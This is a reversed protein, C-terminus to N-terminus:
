KGHTLHHRQHHKALVVRRHNTLQIILRVPSPLFFDIGSGTFALTPLTQIWGGDVSPGVPFQMNAWTQQFIAQNAATINDVSAKKLCAMDFTSGCGAATSFSQYTSDMRGGDSNDWSWQFAPSQVVFSRFLPDTKGGDRVLHHLISSAGASEGWVSIKSADGGVRDIFQSVFKLLLAQDYLGANTQVNDPDQKTMTEMYHGALWGLAGLRYNGAVFIAKYGSAALISQGSYLPTGNILRKSGFLYAGGYFWVVVPLKEKPKGTSSDFNDVPAYIDLGLCDEGQPIDEHPVHIGPLQAAEQTLKVQICADITSNPNQGKPFSPPGFRPPQDAFRVNSWTYIQSNSPDVQSQWTGWDLALSPPSTTQGHVHVALALVGLKLVFNEM